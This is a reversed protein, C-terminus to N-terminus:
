RAEKVGSPVGEIEGKPKKEQGEKRKDGARVCNWKERKTRDSEM